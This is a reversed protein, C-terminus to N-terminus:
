LGWPMGNRYVHLDQISELDLQFEDHRQAELLRRLTQIPAELAWISQRDDLQVFIRDGEPVPVRVALLMSLVSLATVPPFQPAPAANFVLGYGPVYLGGAEPEQFLEATVADLAKQIADWGPIERTKGRGNRYFEYHQETWALATQLDPTGKALMELLPGRPYRRLLHESPTVAESILQAAGDHLYPFPAMVEKAILVASFMEFLRDQPSRLEPRTYRVVLGLRPVFWVTPSFGGERYLRLTVDDLAKRFQDADIALELDQRVEQDREVLVNLVKPVYGTRYAVIQVTGPSGKGELRFRGDPGTTVSLGMRPAEVTAEPIGVGYPNKVAGTLRWSASSEGQGGQPAQAQEAAAPTLQASTALGTVLVVLAELIRRRM